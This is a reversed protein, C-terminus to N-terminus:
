HMLCMLDVQYTTTIKIPKICTKLSDYFKAKDKYLFISQLRINNAGITLGSENIEIYQEPKTNLVIYNHELPVNLNTSIPEKNESKIIDELAEKISCSNIGELSLYHNALGKGVKTLSPHESNWCNAGQLRLSYQDSSKCGAEKQEISLLAYLLFKTYLSPKNNLYLSVAKAVVRRQKDLTDCKCIEEGYLIKILEEM